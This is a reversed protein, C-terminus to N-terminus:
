YVKAKGLYNGVSFRCDVSKRIAQVQEFVFFTDLDRKCGILCTFVGVLNISEYILGRTDPEPAELLVGGFLLAGRVPSTAPTRWIVALPQVM